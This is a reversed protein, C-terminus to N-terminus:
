AALVLGDITGERGRIELGPTPAFGALLDTEGPPERRLRDATDASIVIRARLPRTLEELRSAVNVTDGIVAFELRGAGGINGLVVPGYHIGIGVEIAPEGRQERQANWAELEDLMARACAVAGSADDDGTVPTGFTAMVADGIYKDLTGGHDFVTRQMRTHYERLLDITEEPQRGASLATFGVIDAFLVAVNQRRVAGLPTESRALEDVMNPSFYRSLNAREHAADAQRRVLRRSRWVVVALMGAVILLVVIGQARATLDVYLPDFFVALVEEASQGSLFIDPDAFAGPTRMVIWTGTAWAISGALGSWLVLWPSFSFVNLGLIVFFYVFTEARLYTPAPFEYPFWPNPFLLNFTLLAADAAIFVYPVWVRGHGSHMLWYQGLGLLLFVLLLGLAWLTALGFFQLTLFLAIVLIAVSRVKLALRIGNREEERFAARLRVAQRKPTTPTAM